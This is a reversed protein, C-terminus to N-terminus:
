SRPREAGGQGGASSAAPSQAQAKEAEAATDPASASTRATAGIEAPTEQVGVDISTEEGPDLYRTDTTEGDDGVVWVVSRPGHAEVGEAVETASEHRVNIKM